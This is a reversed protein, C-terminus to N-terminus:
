EEVHDPTDLSVNISNDVLGDADKLIASVSTLLDTRGLRRLLNIKESITRLSNDIEINLNLQLKFNDYDNRKM